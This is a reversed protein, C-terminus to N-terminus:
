INVKIGNCKASEYIAFMTYMTNKIDVPRFFRGKDYYNQMLAIHGSGWCEKGNLIRKDEAICEGNLFLKNETYKARGNEFVVEIEPAESGFYANTAFFMGSFGQEFELRATCTDEVEIEPLSFNERTARVSKVNGAIYIMLDLTHIAQNILVGGGETSWKGRWKDHRYYEATRQWTIIGKVARVAGLHGSEAIEKLKQVSPNFRNQVICCVNEYEKINLISNFENKTMVVPKECLIQKGAKIAKQIMEFHLYHPTCIHICDINGDSLMEDYSAYGIIGDSAKKLREPNIDCVAYVKANETHSIAEAHQPGIAGFGVIGVNKM